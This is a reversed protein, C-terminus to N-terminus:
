RGGVQAKLSDVWQRVQPDPNYTLLREFQQLAEATRGLQYFANGLYQHVQWLGPDLNLAYEFYQISPEIQGADYYSVGASFYSQAQAPDAAPAAAAPEAAAHIPEFKKRAATFREQRRQMASLEEQMGEVIDVGEDVKQRVSVKGEKELVRVVDMIKAREEDIQAPTLDKTYDMHEKLVGAAGASMNTLFKNVIEPAANQLAKAMAETKLERVITQMERDPFDVIDEFLLLHKRVKDFILPKENKLYSLINNRTTADAEALMATLREMGGVVFDVNAKIDADIAEVQEKTVQRITLAELALKAQMEVPLSILVMRAYDPRLYSLVTAIVWPEEKRLIFLYVLRKINEENIYSFPEFKKMAEDEEDLSPPPPPPEPPKEQLTIDLKGEEDLPNEEEPEPQEIKSEIDVEAAPKERLAQVYQRFFRALPGFLFFLLLLTLLAFLLPIYVEPHKLDDTWRWGKDAEHHFRTPRFFVQDPALSYQSMADVVRSRVLEVQATAGLILEDHIVTVGLKKFVPKVAYRVKQVGKVQQAQQAQAAEPKDPTEKGATITKPKPIGPLVYTTQMGGRAMAGQKERYKEVLGMGSRTEDENEINLEMEVDVFARANGKGLMPDLVDREIKEQSERKIREQEQLLGLDPANVAAAAAAALLGCLLAGRCFSAKLSM